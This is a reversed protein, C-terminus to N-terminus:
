PSIGPSSAACPRLRAEASWFGGLRPSAHWPLGGRPAKRARAVLEGRDRGSRHGTFRASARCSSVPCTSWARVASGVPPEATRTAPLPRSLALLGLRAGPRCSPPRCGRRASPGGGQACSRRSSPLLWGSPQRRRCVADGVVTQRPEGQGAEGTERSTLCTDTRTWCPKEATQRM